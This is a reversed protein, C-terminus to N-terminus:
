AQVNHACAPAQCRPLPTCPQAAAPAHWVHRSVAPLLLRGGGAKRVESVTFMKDPNMSIILRFDISHDVPATAFCAPFPLM